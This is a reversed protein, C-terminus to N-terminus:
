RIELETFHSMVESFTMEGDYADGISLSFIEEGRLADEIDDTPAASADVTLRGFRYRVYLMRGDDLKVEWQSPCASCTETINVAVYQGTGELVKRHQQLCALVFDAAYDEHGIDLVAQAARRLVDEDEPFDDDDTANEWYDGAGMCKVQRIAENCLGVANSKCPKDNGFPAGCACVWESKPIEDPHDYNDFSLREFTHGWGGDCLECILRLLDTIRRTVKV